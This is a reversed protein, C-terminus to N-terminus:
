KQKGGIVYKKYCWKLIETSNNKTNLLKFKSFIKISGLIHNEEQKLWIEYEEQNTEVFARIDELDLYISFEKVQEKALEM